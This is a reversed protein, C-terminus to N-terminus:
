SKVLMDDCNWKPQVKTDIEDMALAWKLQDEVNQTMTTTRNQLPSPQPTLRKKCVHAHFKFFIVILLLNMISAKLM